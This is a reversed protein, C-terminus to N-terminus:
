KLAKLIVATKLRSSGYRIMSDFDSRAIPIHQCDIPRQDDEPDPDHVYLCDKDMATVLVWHPAKRGNFRYTSILLVVAHQQALHREVDTLTIEKSIVPIHHHHIQELFQQHVVSLIQKKETSRVGEQFLPGSQNLWVEPHYNRQAAALALGLPHCGGHGSTMFITTAERWINLEEEQLLPREPSLSAMAMLLAAPGCTFPTTQRYWPVPLLNQDSPFRIRKQMRIADTHDEYYNEVIDFSRYGNSEYLSIGPTNTRGVELRMALRGEDAAMQEAHTLLHRGLGQRQLEPLIAISYLRALRTGQHLLVLVYGILRPSTADTEMVQFFAHSSQIWRLFSRRSLRDIDFCLAELELLASLDDSRAARLTTPIM